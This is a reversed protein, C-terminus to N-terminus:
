AGPVVAGLQPPLDGGGEDLPRRQLDPLLGGDGRAHVGLEVLRARQAVAAAVGVNPFTPLSQLDTFGATLLGHKGNSCAVQALSTTGRDYTNDYTVKM